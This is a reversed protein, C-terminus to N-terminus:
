GVSIALRTPKSFGQAQRMYPDKLHGNELSELSNLSQLPGRSGASHPFCFPDVEKTQKSERGLAMTFTQMNISDQLHLSRSNPFPTRSLDSVGSGSRFIACPMKCLFFRHIKWGPPQQCKCSVVHNACHFASEGMGFTSFNIVSDQLLRKMYCSLNGGFLRKM